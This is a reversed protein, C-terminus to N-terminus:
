CNTFPGIPSSFAVQVDNWGTSYTPDATQPWDVRIHMSGSSANGDADQSRGLRREHGLVYTRWNQWPIGSIDTDFTNVLLDDARAAGASGLLALGLALSLLGPRTKSQPRIHHTKMSHEHNNTQNM